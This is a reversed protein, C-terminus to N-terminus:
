TLRKATKGVPTVVGQTQSVGPESGEQEELSTGCFTDKSAMSGATQKM